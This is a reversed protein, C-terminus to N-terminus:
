EWGLFPGFLWLLKNTIFLNAAYFGTIELSSGRQIKQLGEVQAIYNKVTGYKNVKYDVSKLWSVNLLGMYFCPAKEM